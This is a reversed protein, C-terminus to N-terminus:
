NIVTKKYLFFVIGVAIKNADTWSWALKNLVHTQSLVDKTLESIASFMKM